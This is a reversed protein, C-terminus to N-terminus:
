PTGPKRLVIVREGHTVAPSHSGSCTDACFGTMVPDERPRGAGSAFFPLRATPERPERHRLMEGGRLPDPARAFSSRFGRRAAYARGTARLAPASSTGTAASGRGTRSYEPVQFNQRHAARTTALSSRFSCSPSSGRASSSAPRSSAPTGSSARPSHQHSTKRSPVGIAPSAPPPTASKASTRSVRGNPRM